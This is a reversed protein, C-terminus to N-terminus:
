EKGQGAKVGAKEKIGAKREGLHQWSPQPDPRQGAAPRNSGAPVLGPRVECLSGRCSGMALM